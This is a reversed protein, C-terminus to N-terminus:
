CYASVGRQCTIHCSAVDRQRGLPKLKGSACFNASSQPWMHRLYHSRKLAVCRSLDSPFSGATPLHGPLIQCSPPCVNGAAGGEFVCAAYMFYTRSISISIVWSHSCDFSQRSHFCMRFPLIGTLPFWECCKTNRLAKPSFLQIVMTGHKHTHRTEGASAGGNASKHLITQVRISVSMRLRISRWSNRTEGSKLVESHRM